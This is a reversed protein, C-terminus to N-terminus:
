ANGVLRDLRRELAALEDRMSELLLSETELKQGGDRKLGLVVTHQKLVRMKQESVKQMAIQLETDAM